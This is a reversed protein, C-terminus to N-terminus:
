TETLRSWVMKADQFTLRSFTKQKLFSSQDKFPSMEETQLLCVGAPSHSDANPFSGTPYTDAIMFVVRRLVTFGMEDKPPLTSNVALGLLFVM